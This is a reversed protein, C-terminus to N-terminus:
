WKTVASVKKGSADADAPRLFLTAKRKLKTFSLVERM